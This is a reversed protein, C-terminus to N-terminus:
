EARRNWAAIAEKESMVYKRTLESKRTLFCPGKAGCVSCRLGYNGHLSTQEGGCFPCPKLPESM